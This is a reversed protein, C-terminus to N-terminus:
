LARWWSHTVAMFSWSTLWAVDRWLSIHTLSLLSFHLRDPHPPPPPPPLITLFSALLLLQFNVAHMKWGTRIHRPFFFLAVMLVCYHAHKHTQHTCASSRERVSRLSWLATNHPLVLDLELISYCSPEAAESDTAACEASLWGWYQKDRRARLRRCDSSDSQVPPLRSLLFHSVSESPHGVASAIIRHASQGSLRDVSLTGKNERQSRSSIQNYVSSRWTRNFLDLLKILSKLLKVCCHSFCDASTTLMCLFM